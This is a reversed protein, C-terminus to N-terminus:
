LEEQKRALVFITIAVGCVIVVTVGGAHIEPVSYLDNQYFHMGRGWGCAALDLDNDGDWDFLCCGYWSSSTPLGVPTRKTFTATGDNELIGIGAGTAVAIDKYGDKNIDGISVQMKNGSGVSPAGADTWWTNEPGSCGNGKYVKLGNGGTGIALDNYVDGNFDTIGIGFGTGTVFGTSHGTDYSVTGSASCLYVTIVNDNFYTTTIVDLRNDGDLKGLAIGTDEVHGTAITITTWSPSPNGDNLFIKVGSGHTALALDMDGDADIDGVAVDDSSTTTYPSTLESFSITAGSYSGKFIKIGDIGGGCGWDTGAAAIVDLITDGNIDDLRIGGYSGTSSITQRGWSSGSYQWLYLGNPSGGGYGNGGSVIEATGDKNVDGMAVTTYQGSTTGTGIETFGPMALTRDDYGATSADGVNDRSSDTVTSYGVVTVVLMM